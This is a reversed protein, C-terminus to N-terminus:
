EAGEVWSDKWIGIERYYRAVGPHMPIGNTALVDGYDINIQLADEAFQRLSPAMEGLATRNEFVTKVFEYVADSDANPAFAFGTSQSLVKATEGVDQEYVGLPTTSLFFPSIADSNERITRWEAETPAVVKLEARAELDRARSAVNRGGMITHGITADAIGSILSEAEEAYSTYIVRMDDYIGLVRFANAWAQGPGAAAPSHNWTKGVLDSLSNIDDRRALTWIFFETTMTAFGGWPKTTQPTEQWSGENRYAHVLNWLDANVIEAESAEVMRISHAASQATTTAVRLKPNTDSVVKALAIMHEYLTTGEALSVMRLMEPAARGEAAGSGLVLSTCALMMVLFVFVRKM